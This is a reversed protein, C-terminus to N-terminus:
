DNLNLHDVIAIIAADVPMGSAAVPMRASSGQVLLVFDDPGAACLNAAVVSKELVNGSGDEIDVLLLPVGSLKSDKVTATVSGTVRAIKM